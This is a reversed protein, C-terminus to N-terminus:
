VETASESANKGETSQSIFYIGRIDPEMGIVSCVIKVVEEIDTQEAILQYEAGNLEFDAEYLDYYGSPEHTDPDYPGYSMQRYGFTVEVGGISSTKVENEPLIYVCDSVVGTKAAILSFGRRPLNGDKIFCHYGIADYCVTGDDKKVVINQSEECPLGDPIYSPKIRNGYYSIIEEETWKVDFDYLEPDYWRMAYDASYPSIENVAVYVTEAWLDFYNWEGTNPQKGINPTNVEPLYVLVRGDDWFIYEYGTGFNSQGDRTPVTDCTSTIVGDASQVDITAAYEGTQIYLKGNLKVIEPYESSDLPEPPDVSPVEEGIDAVDGMAPPAPENDRSPDPDTSPPAPEIAEFIIWKENMYVLVTDDDYFQYGYGAGFNAQGNRTPRTYLEDTSTTVGDFEESELRSKPMSRGRDKYLRGNLLILPPLDGPSPEPPAPELDANDSLPTFVFWEENFYVFVTNDGGRKYVYGAGFNSQGNEIPYSGDPSATTIGDFDSVDYASAPLTEGSFSYLRGDLTIMLVILACSDHQTKLSPNLYLVYWEEYEPMYVLVTDDVGRKYGYGAGFNAQGNEIPYTGDPSATTIGDFVSTDYASAPLFDGGFSYCEDDLMLVYRLPIGDKNDTNGSNPLSSHGLEGTQLRGFFAIGAFVLCICAALAATKVWAFPRAYPKVNAEEIYSEDIDGLIEFLDESRM